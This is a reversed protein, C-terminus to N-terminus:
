PLTVVYGYSLRIANKTFRSSDPHTPPHITNDSSVGILGSRGLIVVFVVVIGSPIVGIGSRYLYSKPWAWLGVRNVGVLKFPKFEDYRQGRPERIM